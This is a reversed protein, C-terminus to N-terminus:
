GRLPRSVPRSLGRGARAAAPSPSIILLSEEESEAFPSEAIAEEVCVALTGAFRGTAVGAAGRGLGSAFGDFNTMLSTPVIGCYDASCRGFNRLRLAKVVRRQDSKVQALRHRLSQEKLEAL